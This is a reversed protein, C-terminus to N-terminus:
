QKGVCIIYPNISEIRKFNIEDDFDYHGSALIQFYVYGVIVQGDHLLRVGYSTLKQLTTAIPNKETLGDMLISICKEMINFKQSGHQYEMHMQYQLHLLVVDLRHRERALKEKNMPWM